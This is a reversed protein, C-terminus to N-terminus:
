QRLTGDHPVHAFITLSPYVTANAGIFKGPMTSVRVGIRANDGIITGLAQRGTDTKKGKVDVFINRRDIRKNSSIFGAGITVGTGVISDGLYGNHMSSHELIISRAVESHSGVSSGEELSSGRILSFDGIFVDKGIYCPGVIRSAHGVHAGNEIYVPGNDSDIVATKEVTAYPSTYNPMEEFLHSQFDFLHWPFKLSPLPDALEVAHVPSKPFYKNLAAEFSYEQKEEDELVQIYNPSLYYMGQAMLNSNETGQKPKEVIGNIRKGDLTVIGYLWPEQTYTVAIAGGNGSEEVLQLIVTGVDVSSPFTVAFPDKCYERAHLVADGMGLAEPQLVYDIRLKFNYDALFGSLGKGGYDKPSVILVVQDFGNDQLNELTRVVIPKGLLTVGGKHTQTNLPFFRSNEGAALIIVTPLKM